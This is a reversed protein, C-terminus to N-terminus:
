SQSGTLNGEAIVDICSRTRPCHCIPNPGPDDEGKYYRPEGLLASPRRPGPQRGHAERIPHRM